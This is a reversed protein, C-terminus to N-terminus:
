GAKLYFKDLWAPQLRKLLGCAARLGLVMAAAGSPTIAEPRVISAWRPHDMPYAIPGISKEFESNLKLPRLGRLEAEARNRVAEFWSEDKILLLMCIEPRHNALNFALNITRFEAGRTALLRELHVVNPHKMVDSASATDAEPVDFLEELYERLFNLRTTSQARNPFELELPQFMFSPVVHHMGPKDEVQLSRRMCVLEYNGARAFMLLVSGGTAASVGGGSCLCDIPSGFQALLKTRQPFQLAGGGVKPADRFERELAGATDLMEFYSSKHVNIQEVESDPSLIVQSLALTPGDWLSRRRELEGETPKVRFVPDLRRPAKQIPLEANGMSFQRSIALAGMGFGGDPGVLKPLGFYMDELTDMASM